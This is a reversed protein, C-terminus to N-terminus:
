YHETVHSADARRDEDNGVNEVVNHEDTGVNVLCMREDDLVINEVVRGDERQRGDRM